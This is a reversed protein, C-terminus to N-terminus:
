EDRILQKIQDAMEPTLDVDHVSKAHEAAQAMVEATTEAEIKGECDFGADRCDLKKM